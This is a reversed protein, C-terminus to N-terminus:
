SVKELHRNKSFKFTPDLPKKSFKPAVNNRRFVRILGNKM